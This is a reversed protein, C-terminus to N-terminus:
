ELRELYEALARKFRRRAPKVSWRYVWRLLWGPVGKGREEYDVRARPHDMFSFAASRYDGDDRWFEIRSLHKANKYGYHAPAVLRVPAGNAISLPQGDLTDALLVDHSLLDELLMGVRYGDQGRLVVFGTDRAPNARPVVLSEYFEAFRFGSWRLSRKTWTTVCHFDSVQEVRALQDLEEAFRLPQEVEGGIDIAIADTETPFRSAFKLLGFRPLEDIEYQGPPLSRNPNM